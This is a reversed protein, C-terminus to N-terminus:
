NQKRKAWIHNEIRLYAEYLYSFKNEDKQKMLRNCIILDLDDMNFLKDAFEYLFVKAQNATSSPGYRNM